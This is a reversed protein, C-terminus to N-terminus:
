PPETGAQGWNGVFQMQVKVEAMDWTFIDNHQDATGTRTTGAACNAPVAL